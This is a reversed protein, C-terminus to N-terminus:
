SCSSSATASRSRGGWGRTNERYSVTSGFARDPRARFPEKCVIKRVVGGSLNKLQRQMCASRNSEKRLHAPNRSGGTRGLADNRQRSSSAAVAAAAGAPSGSSSRTPPPYPCALLTSQACQPSRRPPPQVTLGIRYRWLPDTWLPNLEMPARAHRAAPHAASRDLRTATAVVTEAHSASEARKRDHQWAKLLHRWTCSVFAVEDGAVLRAFGAIEDRHGAKAADDVRRGTEDLWYEPERMSTSFSPSFDVIRARAISKPACLSPTNSSSRVCDLLRYHHRIM